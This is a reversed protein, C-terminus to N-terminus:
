RTGHGPHSRCTLTESAAQGNQRHSSSREPTAGGTKGVRRRPRAAVNANLAVSTAAAHPPLLSRSPPSPPPPNVLSSWDVRHLSILFQTDIPKVLAFDLRGTRIQESIEECNSMFFTQVISNVFLTTALFV